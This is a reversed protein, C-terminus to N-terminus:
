CRVGSRDIVFLVGLHVADVTWSSPTLRIALVEDLVLYKRGEKALRNFEDELCRSLNSNSAGM